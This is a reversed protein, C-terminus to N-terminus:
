ADARELVVYGVALAAVTWLALIGIGAWHGYPRSFNADGPPGALHLIVMGAQDPFYQTVTKLVPVNGLGQSGLFLLPLLVGLARATSRLAAAVGVAFLCLLVLYLCGGLIVRPSGPATLWTRYRGLAAQGIEFTALVTVVVVPLSVLTVTLLKCGYFRGRRPMAALSARITGSGYETGIALVGFVVLALEGLTLGATAAVVPDFHGRHQTAVRALSQGAILAFGASIAITGLLTWTTSRLSRVKTLEAAIVALAARM